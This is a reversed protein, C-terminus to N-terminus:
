DAGPAAASGEQIFDNHRKIRQTALYFDEAVFSKVMQKVLQNMAVRSTREYSNITNVSARLRTKWLIDGDRSELRLHVIITGWSSFFFNGFGISEVHAKLYGADASSFSAGGQANYGAAELADRVSKMISTSTDGEVKISGMKMTLLTTHGVKNSDIGTAQSAVNVSGERAIKPKYTKNSKIEDISSCSSLLWGLASVLGLIKIVNIM